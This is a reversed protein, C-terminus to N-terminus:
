RKQYDVDKSDIGPDLLLCSDGIMKKVEQFNKKPILVPVLFDPIVVTHKSNWKDKAQSFAFQMDQPSPDEKSPYTLVLVAIRFKTKTGQIYDVVTGGFVTSVLLGTILLSLFFKKDFMKFM